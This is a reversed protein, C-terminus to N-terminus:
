GKKLITELKETASEQMTPLVHSYVDLTLVISAHGLRESVVKPNEGAQLLLTACTHRLDYLRIDPLKANVLIPKFHRRQLNRVSHPMGAGELTKPKGECCFVLDLDAWAAGAKMRRELQKKRHGELAKLVSTPLPITRRSRSTKPEGFYYETKWRKWVLTRQVTVTRAKFDIDSWKLALYEEPRMGTHLALGFLVGHKGKHSEELFIRAQEATLVKMERRVSKPLEVDSAPNSPLIKWKVARKLARQFIAHTYRVTRASLKRCQKTEREVMGSIFDQVDLVRLASLKKSGLAPRVYLRLLGVYDEYTRASVTQKAAGLWKDLFENVTDRNEFSETGGELENEIDRLTKKGETRNPVLRWIQKKKGASDKYVKRVYLKGDREVFGMDVGGM